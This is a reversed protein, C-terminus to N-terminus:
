GKLPSANGSGATILLPLRDLSRIMPVTPSKVAARRNLWISQVSLSALPLVSRHLDSSVFAIEGLPVDYRSLVDAVASPEEWLKARIDVADFLGEIGVRKLRERETPPHGEALVGFRVAGRLHFLVSPVDGHVSLGANYGARVVEYLADCCEISLSRDFSRLLDRQAQTPVRGWGLYDRYVDDCCIRFLDSFRRGRMWPPAEPARRLAALGCLLARDHDLLTGDIDFLLWRVRGM